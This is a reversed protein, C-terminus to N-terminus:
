AFSLAEKPQPTYVESSTLGVFVPASQLKILESILVKGTKYYFGTSAYEQFIVEFVIESLQSPDGASIIVELITDNSFIYQDTDKHQYGQNYSAIHQVDAFVAAGTPLSGAGKGIMIHEEAYDTKLEAFNNAYNVNYATEQEDVLTPLVFASITNGKRIVKSMLRYKLGKNRAYAMDQEKIDSIGLNLISEAPVDLGFAHAIVLKLKYKPDFADVDSSADLEAYGLRQADLLTDDFASNEEFQRTLIYNTTGNFIGEIKTIPDFRFYQDITKLIPIAGCVAGEYLLPTEYQAILKRLSGYYTALMKKNATVIPIRRKIAQAVIEFATENGNILE